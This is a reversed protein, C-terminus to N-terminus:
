KNKIFTKAWKKAAEIDSFLQTPTSMRAFKMFLNAVMRTFSSHVIVAMCTMRDANEPLASYDRVEKSVGKSTPSAEIIFPMPYLHGFAANIDANHKKLPGLEIDEVTFRLYLVGDKLEIEAIDTNLDIIKEMVKTLNIFRM